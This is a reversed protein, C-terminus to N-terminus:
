AGIEANYTEATRKLVQQYKMNFKVCFQYKRGLVTETITETSANEEEDLM